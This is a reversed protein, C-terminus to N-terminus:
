RLAMRKLEALVLRDIQDRGAYRMEFNESHHFKFIARSTAATQRDQIPGRYFGLKKLARLVARLRAGGLPLLDEPEPRLFTLRHLRLLRVLERVPRRHDDIRLDALTDDFGGYGAGRKAVRLAASQRGRRDGGAKEGAALAAVLRDTLPRGASARFVQAMARVTKRGVLINGQVAFGRGTIGGAWPMCDAGTFTAARGRADVIGAQREARGPDRQTLERLAQRPSLGRRLLRLGKPGYTTNAFSQTAVAGVGAAAFPVVAGVALFRSAVAM